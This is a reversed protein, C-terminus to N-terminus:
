SIYTGKISSNHFVKAIKNRAEYYRQKQKYNMKKVKREPTNVLDVMEKFKNRNVRM